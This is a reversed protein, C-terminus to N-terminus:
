NEAGDVREVQILDAENRRLTLSFNRIKIQVPDGLPAMREVKFTVGRTLGMALLKRRYISQGQHYGVIRVMDGPKLDVVSTIM